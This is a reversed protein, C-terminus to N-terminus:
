DLGLALVDNLANWFLNAHTLVAGKPTGTTGSTYVILAAEDDGPFADMPEPGREPRGVEELLREDEDPVTILRVDCREAVAEGAERGEPGAFLVSTGADEVAHEV